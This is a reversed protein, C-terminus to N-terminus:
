TLTVMDRRLSLTVDDRSQLSKDPSVSSPAPRMFLLKVVDAAIAEAGANRQRRRRSLRKVYERRVMEEAIAEADENWNKSGCRDCTRVTAMSARECTKGVAVIHPCIGGMVLHADHGKSDRTFIGTGTDYVPNLLV